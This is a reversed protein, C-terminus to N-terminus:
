EKTDGKIIHANGILKFNQFADKSEAKDGTAQMDPKSIKVNGECTLIGQQGDWIVKDTDFKMDDTSEAHIGSDLVMNKQKQDYEGTDAILEIKSGDDRYFTGKINKMTMIQAEQDVTMTEAYCEWILKGGVEEKITNNSYTMISKSPEYNEVQPRTAYAWYLVGLICLALVYIAVKKRNINSFVTKKTM